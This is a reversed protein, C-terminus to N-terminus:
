PARLRTSSALFNAGDSDPYDGAAIAAPGQRARGHEATTSTTAPSSIPILPVTAATKPWAALIPRAWSAGHSPAHLHSLRAGTCFRLRASRAFRRQSKARDPRTRGGDGRARRARNATPRRRGGGCPCGDCRRRGRRWSVVPAGLNNRGFLEDHKHEAACTGMRGEPIRVHALPAPPIPQRARRRRAAPSARAAPLTSRGAPRTDSNSPTGHASINASARIRAAPPASCRHRARGPPGRDAAPAGPAEAGAVRRGWSRAAQRVEDSVRARDVAVRRKDDAHEVGLRRTSPGSEDYNM